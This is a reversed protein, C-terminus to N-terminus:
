RATVIVYGVKKVRGHHAVVTVPYRGPKIDTRITATNVFRPNDGDASKSDDSRLRVAHTFAPSTATLRLEEGPDPTVDHWMVEVKGGRAVRLSHKHPSDAYGVGPDYLDPGYAKGLYDPDGPRSARVTLRKKVLHRGHPGLLEFTYTGDALGLKLQPRAQFTRPNYFDFHKDHVLRVPRPLAASRVTFHTGREGPYLDDFFLWVPAGPRAEDSAQNLEFSPRKSRVVHIKDHALTRAAVTVSLPHRGPKATMPLSVTAGFSGDQRRLRVPGHFASSRAVVPADVSECNVGDLELTVLQGPRADLNGGVILTPKGTPTTCRSNVDGHGATHHADTKHTHHASAAPSRAAETTSASTGCGGLVLGAALVGMLRSWNM